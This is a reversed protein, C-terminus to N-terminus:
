DEKELYDFTLSINLLLIADDDDTANFSLDGISEIQCNFFTFKKLKKGKGNYMVLSSNFEKQSFTGNKIDVMNVFLEYIEDYVKLERDVIIDMVLPMFSVNDPALNLQFGGRGEIKPQAFTIGPLNYNQVHFDVNKLGTMVEFNTTHLTNM